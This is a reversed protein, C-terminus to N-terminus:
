PDRRASRRRARGPGHAYFRDVRTAVEAMAAWPPEGWWAYGNHEGAVLPVGARLAHAAAWWAGLMHAHVVDAGGLRPQLWAAFTPDCHWQLDVGAGM